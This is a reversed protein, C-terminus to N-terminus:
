RPRLHRRRFYCLGAAFYLATLIIIGALEFSIDAFGANFNLIKNFAKVTLATPLIDNAYLTHGGLKLFSIKPLPFMSESFFMLVFFPFIGVTLLEYITKMWGAVILSIAIVSVTSLAGVLLFLLISGNSRYGVSWASFYTLALAATGILLQNLGVAGLFEWASLKSMILRTITGKDVEKILSAAATFLVMIIALVLLAPVYLDFDNLSRGASIGEFEVAAPLDIAKVAAVYSYTVFDAFAAAMMFRANFEDGVNKIPATKKAALATQDAPEAIFASFGEPIVVMLDADRNKLRRKGEEASKAARVKFYPKGDPYKAKAWEAALEEGARVERGDATVAPRDQNLVLLGYSPSTAGFYAYMMYVFFPGFVLALILIKWERLNEKFTKGFYALLKAM